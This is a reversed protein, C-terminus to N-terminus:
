ETSVTLPETISIMLAPFMGDWRVHATGSAFPLTITESKFLFSTYTIAFNCSNISPSKTWTSLTSAWEKGSTRRSTRTSLRKRFGTTPKLSSFKLRVSFPFFISFIFNAPAVDSLLKASTVINNSRLTDVFSYSCCTSWTTLSILRDM